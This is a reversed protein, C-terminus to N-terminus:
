REVAALDDALRRLVAALAAREEEDWATLAEGLVERWAARYRELVRRGPRTLDLRAARGDAPDGSRRLLGGEELSRVQRSVTPVAVYLAAALDSLRVPGREAIGALIPYASRDLSLGARASVVQHLRRQHSSRLVGALAAVVAELSADDRVLVAM